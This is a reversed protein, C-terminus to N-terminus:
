TSGTFEIAVELAVGSGQYNDIVMGGLIEIVKLAFLESGTFNQTVSIDDVTGEATFEIRLIIL